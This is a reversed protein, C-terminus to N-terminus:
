PERLDTMASSAAVSTASEAPRALGAHCVAHMRASAAAAASGKGNLVM